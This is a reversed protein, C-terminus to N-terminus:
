TRSPYSCQWDFLCLLLFLNFQMYNRQLQRNISRKIFRSVTTLNIFSERNREMLFICQYFFLFKMEPLNCGVSNHDCLFCELPKPLREVLNIALVLEQNVSNRLKNQLQFLYYEYVIPSRWQKNLNSLFGLAFHLCIILYAM